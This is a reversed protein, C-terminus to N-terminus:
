GTSGCLQECSPTVVTDSSGTGKRVKVSMEHVHQVYLSAPNVHTFSLIISGKSSFKFSLHFVLYM